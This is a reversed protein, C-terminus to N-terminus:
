EHLGFVQFITEAPELWLETQAGMVREQYFVDVRKLKECFREREQEGLSDRFSVASTRIEELDLGTNNSWDILSQAEFAATYDEDVTGLEVMQDIEELIWLQLAAESELNGETEVEEESEIAKESEMTAEQEEVTQNETLHPLRRDVIDWVLVLFVLVVVVMGIVKGMGRYM